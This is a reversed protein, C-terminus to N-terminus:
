DMAWAGGIFTTITGIIGIILLKGSLPADRVVYEWLWWVGGVVTMALFLCLITIFAWQIARDTIPKAPEKAEVESM